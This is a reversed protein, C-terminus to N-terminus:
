CLYMQPMEKQVKGSINCKQGLRVELRSRVELGFGEMNQTAIRFKNISGGTGKARTHTHTSM